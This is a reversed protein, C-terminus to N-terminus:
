VLLHMDWVSTTGDPKAWVLDARGDGTVDGVGALHWETGIHGAPEYVHTVTGNNIAWIEVDNAANVLVIDDIGDKNFDGVDAFHFGSPIQGLSSASSVHAGNMTWTSLNGNTSEWLVGSNGSADFKGTAAVSWEMGMHGDSLSANLMTTGNMSWVAVQNTSSVWLVDSNGDGNFDATGTVHWEAGMKGPAIGVAALSPGNMEWIAVQGKANTWLMDAKGDHNFDAATSFGSWEAGMHGSTVSASTLNGSNMTWLAANGSNNIWLLDATGDGTHDAIDSLHWEAGMKGSPTVVSVAASVATASGTTNLRAALAAGDDVNGAYTPTNNDFSNDGFQGSGIHNNTFSVGTILASTARGDSYVTYGGGVLLNDSVQINSIAGFDNDIMVASTQGHNNIVSNHSILVNSVGGDIQIGDYHPSGSANLDHIYNGQITTNSGAVSIGNEVNYIDNNLFQGQGNIGTSGDNGSGVGNIDCNQIVTGTIGDAISVVSWASSTITCNEITVNPAEISVQGTINLGSIVAGAQTVVLGGSPTLTVGAPLGTNTADPFSPVTSGTAGGLVYNAM